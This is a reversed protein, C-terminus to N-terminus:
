MKQQRFGLLTIQYASEIHPSSLAYIPTRRWSMKCSVLHTDRATHDTIDKADRLFFHSISTPQDDRRMGSARDGPDHMDPAVRVRRLRDTTGRLAGLLAASRADLEVITSAEDMNVSRNLSLPVHRLQTGGVLRREVTALEGALRDNPARLRSRTGM